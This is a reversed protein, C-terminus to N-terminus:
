SIIQYHQVYLFNNLFTYMHFRSHQSFTGLMDLIGSLHHDISGLPPILDKPTPITARRSVSLVHCRFQHPPQPIM